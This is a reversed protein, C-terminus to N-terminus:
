FLFMTQLNPQGSYVEHAEELVSEATGTPSHRPSGCILQYLVVRELLKLGYTTAAELEAEGEADADADADLDAELDAELDAAALLTFGDETAALALLAELTTAEAETLAEDTATTAEAETLAEDTATAADLIEDTARTIAEGLALAEATAGEAAEEAFAAAGEPLTLELPAQPPLM